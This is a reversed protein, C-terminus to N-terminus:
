HSHSLIDLLTGTTQNAVNIVAANADYLNKAQSLNVLQTALDVNSGEQGDPLIPGASPDQSYGGVAVGGGSIDVLDVSSSKYKPTDLNAVNNAAVNLQAQAAQLGSVAIDYVSMHLVSEKRPRM